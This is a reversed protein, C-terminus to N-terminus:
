EFIPLYPLSDFYNSVRKIPHILSHYSPELIAATQILLFPQRYKTPFSPYQVM